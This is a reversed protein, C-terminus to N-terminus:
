SWLGSGTNPQSAIQDELSTQGTKAEVLTKLLVDVDEFYTQLKVRRLGGPLLQCRDLGQRARELLATMPAMPKIAKMIKIAYELERPHFAIDHERITPVDIMGSVDMYPRTGAVRGTNWGKHWAQVKSLLSDCVGRFWLTKTDIVSKGRVGVQRVPSAVDPM